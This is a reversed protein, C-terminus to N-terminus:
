SHQSASKTAAGHAETSRNCAMTVFRVHKVCQLSALFPFRPALGKDLAHRSEFTFLLLISPPDMATKQKVKGRKRQARQIAQNSADSRTVRQFLIWQVFKCPSSRLIPARRGLLLVCPADAWKCLVNWREDLFTSTGREKRTTSNCLQIETQQVTQLPCSKCTFRIKRSTRINRYELHQLFGFGKLAAFHMAPNSFCFLPRIQLRCTHARELSRAATSTAATM